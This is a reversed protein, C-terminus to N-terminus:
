FSIIEVEVFTVNLSSTLFRHFQVLIININQKPSKDKSHVQFHQIHEDILELM